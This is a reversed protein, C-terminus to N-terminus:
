LVKLADRVRSPTSESGVRFPIKRVEDGVRIVGPTVVRANAGRLRLERGRASNVLKMADVGFREVFKGCGTHPQATIEVVTNGIALQTGAPLNEVGIDLDVFLQDGALPWREEDGAILTAVRSNMLTLQLDPHASGDSTRSSSRSRWTDGVLGTAADLEGEQLLERAGIEPRRVIMELRGIDRPSQQTQPLGGQLEALSRHKETVTDPM